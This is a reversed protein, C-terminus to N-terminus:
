DQSLPQLLQPEPAPQAHRAFAPSMPALAGFLLDLAGFALAFAMAFGLIGVLTVILMEMSSDEDARDFALREGIGIPSPSSEPSIWCWGAGDSAPRIKRYGCNVPRRPM